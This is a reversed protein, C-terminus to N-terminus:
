EPLKQSWKHFCWKVESTKLSSDFCCNRRECDYQTIGFEGCERRLHPTGGCENTSDEPAFCWKDRPLSSNFCCGRDYCARANAVPEGCMRRKFPSMGCQAENQTKTYFCKTASSRSDFCCNRRKCDIQSIGNFGCERRHGNPGGCEIAMNYCRPYDMRGNKCQVRMETGYPFDYGPKCEFEVTKGHPSELTKQDRWRLKINKEEM